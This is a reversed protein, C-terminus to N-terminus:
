GYLFCGEVDDEHIAHHGHHITELGRSVDFREGRRGQDNTDCAISKLLVDLGEERATDILNHQLRKLHCLQQLHEAVLKAKYLYMVIKGGSFTYMCVM